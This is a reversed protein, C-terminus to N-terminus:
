PARQPRIAHLESRRALFDAEYQNQRLWARLQRYEPSQTAVLSWFSKSHNYFRLHALEHIVVYDVVEPPAIILRWNLSLHGQSSCSGWRTKQSRFSLSTPHLQMREAFYAVREALLEAGLKKFFATIEVFLEPHESQPDFGSWLAPPIYCEMAEHAIKLQVKRSHGKLFHLILSEGLFLFSEGECFRKAPYRQRLTEYKGLHTRVWDQHLELFERIRTLTAGKPASVRIRGDVQLTVGISRKHPQRRIEVETNQFLLVERETIAPKEVKRQKSGRTFLSLQRFM